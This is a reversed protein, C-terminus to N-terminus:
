EDFLEAALRMLRTGTAAALVALAVAAVVVVAPVGLELGGGLATGAVVTLFTLMM